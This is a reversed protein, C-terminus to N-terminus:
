DRPPAAGPLAALSAIEVVTSIVDSTLRGKDLYGVAGAEVARSVTEPSDTGTLIVVRSWPSRERIQKTAEIGDLGPMSADMLIVDPRLSVALEVAELGDHARGVVDLRDDEGLLAVLANTFIAEDDAVLVRIAPATTPRARESVKGHV